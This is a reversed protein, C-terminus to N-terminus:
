LSAMNGNSTEPVSVSIESSSNGYFETSKKVEALPPSIEVQNGLKKAPSAFPSDPLGHEIITTGCENADCGKPDFNGEKGNVTGNSQICSANVDLQLNQEVVAMTSAASTSSNNGGVELVDQNKVNSTLNLNIDVPSHPPLSIPAGASLSRQHNHIYDGRLDPLQLNILRRGQLEIAQQLEAQQELKRRLMMEQTNYLMRAGLRLDYLERPDLASPSSCPSFNGRDMLQQQLHQQRKNAVKGKEKYPKVLVRSNCIFHPNGRSLIVKVTESHVFTVFGFMRKQQYPIRVDQVPGFTSFYNSVDEDKFTSDAPFTLYIQRSASNAKEEIAMALLDNRESRFQGFKHIEDGMLVSAAGMRPSDNEQQLLFNMYKSYALRQQHQAAKMRMIEEHQQLYLGEMEGPSGVIASGASVEGINDGGFGGHVFKCNDGNKCFGRAFYMCPRYGIGFGGDETGFCADSESFRRRHLHSDVNNMGFGSLQLRPDVFEEHQPSLDDLFSFYEDLQYENLLDSNNNGTDASGNVGNKSYPPVLASGARINDYSLFPSSKPSISVTSNNNTFGSCPAPWSHPSPNKAFDVFSSVRSGSQSFPNHSNSPRSIPNLPSPSSPASPTSLANTSFGLQTKAKIIVSQLLSESGFALSFLDKDSLGQILIYGMIKYANEPDLNTIKSWLINTAESADM